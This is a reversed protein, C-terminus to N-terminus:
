SKSLWQIESNIEPHNNLINEVDKSVLVGDPHFLKSKSYDFIFDYKHKIEIGKEKRIHNQVNKRFIETFGQLKKLSNEYITPNCLDTEIFFAFSSFGKSAIFVKSSSLGWTPENERGYWHLGPFAGPFSVGMIKEYGEVDQINELHSEVYLIAPMNSQSARIDLKASERLDLCLGGITEAYPRITNRLITQQSGTMEKVFLDIVSGDVVRFTGTVRVQKEIENYIPKPSLVLIPQVETSIDLISEVTEGRKKQDTKEQSSPLIFSKINPQYLFYIYIKGGKTEIPPISQIPFQNPTAAIELNVRGSLPTSINPKIKHDIVRHAYHSYFTPRHTLIYKSLFGDISVISGPGVKGSYYDEIAREFTVLSNSGTHKTIIEISQAIKKISSVLCSGAKFVDIDFSISPM